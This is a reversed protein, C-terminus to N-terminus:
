IDSFQCFGCEEIRINPDTKRCLQCMISTKRIAICTRCFCRLLEARKYTGNMLLDIMKAILTEIEAVDDIKVAYGRVNRTYKSVASQSVGLIGAVEEQTLGRKELLEKAMLAKVAPVVSKVAVECPLILSGGDSARNLPFLYILIVYTM